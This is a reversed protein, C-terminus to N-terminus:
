DFAIFCLETRDFRVRFFLESGAFEHKIRNPETLSSLELTESYEHRPIEKRSFNYIFYYHIIM